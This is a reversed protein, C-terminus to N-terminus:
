LLVAATATCNTYASVHLATHGAPTGANVDVHQLRHLRKSLLLEVMSAKKGKVAAMLLTHSHCDVASTDAGHELLVLVAVANGEQAAMHLPTVAEQTVADVALGNQLLYELM